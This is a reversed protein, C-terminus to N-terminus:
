GETQTAVRGAPSLAECRPCFWAIIAEYKRPQEGPPSVELQDMIPVAHPVHGAVHCPTRKALRRIALEGVEAANMALGSRRAGFCGPRGCVWVRAITYRSLQGTGNDVELQATVPVSPGHSADECARVGVKRVDREQLLEITM